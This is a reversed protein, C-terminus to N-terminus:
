AMHKLNVAYLIIFLITFLGGLGVAAISIINFGMFVFPVILGALAALLYIYFGQKQLNWMKWVGFLSLLSLVISAIGMPKASAATKEAAEMMGDMMGNMADGGEGLEGMQAQSEEMQARLKAMEDSGSGAMLNMAGSIIGWAGAIFSLICIVTLLTPRQKAGTNMDTM